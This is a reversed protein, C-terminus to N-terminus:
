RGEPEYGLAELQQALTGRIAVREAGARIMCWADELSSINGSAKIRIGDGFADKLLLVDHFTGRGKRLGIGLCLKIFSAGADLALKAELIKERDTLYGTELIVKVPAHYKNAMAVTEAIEQQFADYKKEFFLSLRGVFDIESVGMQLATEFAYLREAQLPQDNNGQVVKVPTGKVYELVEPLFPRFTVIRGYGYRIAHDCAAKITEHGTRHDSIETSEVRKLIEAITENDEPCSFLKNM